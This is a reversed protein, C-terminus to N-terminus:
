SKRAPPNEVVLNNVVPGFSNGAGSARVGAINKEMESSVVGVLTVRGNDVIIHIPPVRLGAYPAFAPDSYIARAIRQRLQADASSPPLVEIQDSVGTVGAVRKVAHEIDDKKFPMTVAGTLQAQGDTVQVNVIDWVSYYPYMAVEHAVRQTIDADGKPAASPRSAAAASGAGLLLAAALIKGIMGSKM